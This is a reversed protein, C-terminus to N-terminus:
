VGLKKSLRSLSDEEAVMVNEDEYKKVTKAVNDYDIKAMKPEKRDVVKEDQGENEEKKFDEQVFHHKRLEINLLTKAHAMNEAISDLIVNGARRETHVENAMDEILSALGLLQELNETVTARLFPTNNATREAYERAHLPKKGVAIFMNEKIADITDYLDDGMIADALLHLAYSDCFYHFDKCANLYAQLMVILENFREEM